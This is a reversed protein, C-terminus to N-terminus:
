SLAVAAWVGIMGSPASPPLIDLPVLPNWVVVGTWGLIMALCRPDVLGPTIAEPSVLVRGSIQCPFETKRPVGAM